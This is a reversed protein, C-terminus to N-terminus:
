TTPNEGKFFSFVRQKLPASTNSSEEEHIENHQFQFPIRIPLDIIGDLFGLGIIPPSQSTPNSSGTSIGSWTNFFRWFSTGDALSHNITCSIFLGDVLETVKVALLPKSVGKCNLVRNMLFFSNVIDPVYLPELIDAVTVGDAVAHVFEAGGHNNCDVFFSTTKDDDNEVM